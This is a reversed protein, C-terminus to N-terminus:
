TGAMAIDALLARHDSGPVSLTRVSTATCDRTLVHDVAFVTPLSIDAPHTRTLGAGAQEATDPYGDRLLRRFERIDRTANFDGAVIVAGDGTMALQPLKEAMRALDARWGAIPEPWPASLHTLVITAEATVAPIRVKATVLGLWFDDDTDSASIPFRSWIGVGAPGDCARLAQSPFVEDLGAAAMLDAKEPTLEQVALIDAHKGAMSVVAEADARGYRLNASMVRVTVGSPADSRVYWPLQVAVTALTVAAAAAALIWDRQLALVILSVPAGLMLYPALAAVGLVVRNTIPVYRVALAMAAVALAIVGASESASIQVPSITDASRSTPLIAM